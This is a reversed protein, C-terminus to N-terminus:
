MNRTLNLFYDNYTTMAKVQLGRLTIGSSSDPSYTELHQVQEALDPNRSLALFASFAGPDQLGPAALPLV